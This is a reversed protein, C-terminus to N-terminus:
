ESEKITTDMQFFFGQSIINSIYIQTNLDFDLLEYIVPSFIVINHIHNLQQSKQIYKVIVSCVVSVLVVWINWLM